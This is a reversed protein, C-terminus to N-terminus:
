CGEKILDQVPESTLAHSSILTHTKPSQYCLKAVESKLLATKHLIFIALINHWENGSLTIAMIKDFIIIIVCLAMAFILVINKDWVIHCVYAIWM